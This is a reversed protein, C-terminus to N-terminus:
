KQTFTQLIVYEDTLVFLREKEIRINKTNSPLQIDLQRLSFDIPNFMYIHGKKLYVIKENIYQFTQLTDMLKIKSFNAFIDFELIKNQDLMFVANNIDKIMTPYIETGVNFTNFSASEVMLKLDKSYKKLKLDAVDFLWIQNDASRGLCAIQSVGISELDCEGRINLLNDLFVVKNQDRYFIYIEFPNSVDISTINGLVKFNATAMKKGNKDYKIIDNTPTIVFLNELNDSTISSNQPVPITDNLPITQANAVLTFCALIYLALYNL